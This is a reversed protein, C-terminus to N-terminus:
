DSTFKVNLTVVEGNNLEVTQTQYNSPKGVPYAVMAVIISGGGDWNFAFTGTLGPGILMISDAINVHIQMESENYVKVTAESTKKCGSPWLLLAALVIWKIQKIM